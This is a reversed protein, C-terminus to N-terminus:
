KNLKNYLFIYKEKIAVGYKKSGNYYQWALEFDNNARRLKDKFLAIVYKLEIDPNLL